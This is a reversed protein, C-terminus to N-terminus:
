EEEPTRHPSSIVDFAVVLALDDDDDGVDDDSPGRFSTLPTEPLADDDDDDV